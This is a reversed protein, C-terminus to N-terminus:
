SISFANRCAKKVLDNNYCHFFTRQQGLHKVTFTKMLFVCEFYCHPLLPTDVRFCGLFLASSNCHQM